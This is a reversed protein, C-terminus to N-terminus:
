RPASRGRQPELWSPRTYGFQALHPHMFIPAAPMKTAAQKLGHHNLGRDGFLM